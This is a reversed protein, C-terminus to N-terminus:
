MLSPEPQEAVISTLWQKIITLHQQEQALAGLFDGVMDTEGAEDALAILLEWGANDTMEATLIASLSQALTTRPDTLVQMLGSSAVASVDACPTQATPDGGLKRMAECLLHFHALEEGRIRALTFGADEGNAGNGSAAPQLKSSQLEQASRYKLILADYLRTGTREFALREGIKDILIAPHTGNLKALGAKAIGKLTKPPSISGVAEAEEIYRMKHLEMESTDIRRVPTLADAAENMAKLAEPVLASGTMNPGVSTAQM